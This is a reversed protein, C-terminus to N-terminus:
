NTDSTEGYELHVLARVPVGKGNITAAKYHSALLSAKAGKELGDRDCHSVMPNSPKGKANITLLIECPSKGEFAFAEAGYGDDIFKTMSPATMSKTLPYVGNADPASSLTGPPTAFGCRIPDVIERAGDMRFSIEIYIKVAVPKGDATTAPKFTYKATSDLSPKAFVMDSCRIVHINAPMGKPDVILSIACKGDIQKKRAEPSYEAEPQHVPKPAHMGAKYDLKQVALDTEGPESSQQALVRFGALTLLLAIKWFRRM